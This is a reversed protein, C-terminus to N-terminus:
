IIQYAFNLSISKREVLAQLSAWLVAIAMTDSGDVNDYYRQYSDVSYWHSYQLPIDVDGHLLRSRFNYLNTLSKKEGNRSGLLLESKQLMQETKGGRDRGYLAELGVLCWIFQLEDNTFLYKAFASVARGTQGKPVGENFGNLMMLWDLVDKPNLHKCAPWELNHFRMGHEDLLPNYQVAKSYGNCDQKYLGVLFSIGPLAITLALVIDNIHHVINCDDVEDTQDYEFELYSMSSAFLLYHEGMAEIGLQLFEESIMPAHFTIKLQKELRFLKKLYTGDAVESIFKSLYIDSEVEFKNSFPLIYRM